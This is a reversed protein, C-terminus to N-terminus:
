GNEPPMVGGGHGSIMGCIMVHTSSYRLKTIGDTGSRNRRPVQRDAQRQNVVPKFTDVREDVAVATGAPKQEVQDQNAETKWRGDDELSVPVFVQLRKSWHSLPSGLRSASCSARDTISFRCRKTTGLM